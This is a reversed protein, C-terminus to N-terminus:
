YLYLTIHYTLIYLYHINYVLIQAPQRQKMRWLVDCLSGASEQMAYMPMEGVLSKFLILVLRPGLQISVTDATAAVTPSVGEIGSVAILREFFNLIGKTAERHHMHLGVLAAEILSVLQVSMVLQDPCHELYRALFHFYEEVQCTHM